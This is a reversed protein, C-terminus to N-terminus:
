CRQRLTERAFCESLLASGDPCLGWLCAVCLAAGKGWHRNEALPPALM